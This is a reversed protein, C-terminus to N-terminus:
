HPRSLWKEVPKVLEPAREGARAFTERATRALALSRARNAHSGFLARALAFQVDGLDEPPPPSEEWISLARELPPVAGRPDGEALLANGIAAHAWALMPHDEGYKKQWLHLAREAYKQAQRPRKKALYASALGLLPYGLDPHDPGVGAEYRALAREFEAIADDVEGEGLLLLALNNRAAAGSVSSPGRAGDWIEIARELYPRAETPRGAARLASALDIMSSASYPHDKGLTRDWHEIAQEQIHQAEEFRGRAYVVLGLQTLTHGISLEQPSVARELELARTLMREAEEYHGLNYHAVALNHLMDAREYRDDDLRALAAEAVPQLLLAQEFRALKYGLLLIVNNWAAAEVDNRNAAAAERAVRYFADLAVEREGGRRLALALGELSDVRLSPDTTKEADAALGRAIELAQEFRGLAHTAAVEALTARLHARREKEEDDEAPPARKGGGSRACTDIAPLTRAGTVIDDAADPDVGARLGTTFARMEALRQDLCATRADLMEESQEGRLHTAECAERRASVLREARADLAHSVSAFAKASYKRGTAEFAARTEARVADDWVGTLLAAEDRCRRAGSAHTYVTATVVAASAVLAGLVAWISARRTTPTLAAALADISPFRESPDYSLGRQIARGIRRPVASKPLDLKRGGDEPARPPDLGDTVRGRYLAEYLAVCFSFQDSREDTAGHLQEPAM